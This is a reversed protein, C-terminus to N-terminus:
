NKNKPSKSNNNNPLDQCRRRNLSITKVDMKRIRGSRCPLLSPRLSLSGRVGDTLNRGVTPMQTM